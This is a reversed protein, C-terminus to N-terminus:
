VKKDSSVISIIQALKSGYEKAIARNHTNMIEDCIINCNQEIKLLNRAVNGTTSSGGHGTGDVFDWSEGTASQIKHQLQHKALEIFQYGKDYKSETWRKIGAILHYIVKIWHEFCRLLAHLVQVPRVEVEPIPKHTQGAQVDYVNPMKKITDVDPDYLDDFIAHMSNIDRTILFGSEVVAICHCGSRSVSCLDCYAGGKVLLLNSAKRDMYHAVVHVQCVLNETLQIGADKMEKIHDDFLNQSQFSETSEKGLQLMVPRQNFESNPSDQRWILLDNEWLELCCFM